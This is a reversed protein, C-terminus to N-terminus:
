LVLPVVVCMRTHTYANTVVGVCGDLVCACLSCVCVCVCVCMFAGVITDSVYSMDLDTGYGRTRIKDGSVLRRIFLALLAFPTWLFRWVRGCCSPSHRSSQAPGGMWVCVCVCEWVCM